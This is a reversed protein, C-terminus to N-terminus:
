ETYKELAGERRQEGTHRLTVGRKSTSLVTKKLTFARLGTGNYNRTKKYKLYLLNRTCMLPSYVRGEELHLSYFRFDFTQIWSQSENESEPKKVVISKAM